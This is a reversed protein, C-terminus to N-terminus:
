LSSTVAWSRQRRNLPWSSILSTSSPTFNLSPTFTVSSSAVVCSSFTAAQCNEHSRDVVRSLQEPASMPRRLSRQGVLDVPKFFHSSLAVITAQSRRGWASNTVVEGLDDVPDLALVIPDHDGPVTALGCDKDASSVQGFELLRQRDQAVGFCQGVDTFRVGSVGATLHDAADVRDARM